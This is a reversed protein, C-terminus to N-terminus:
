GIISIGCLKHYEYGNILTESWSYLSLANVEGLKDKFNCWAERFEPLLSYDTPTAPFAYNHSDKTLMHRESRVSYSRNFLSALNRM